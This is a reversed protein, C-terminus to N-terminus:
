RDCREHNYRRDHRGALWIWLVDQRQLFLYLFPERLLLQQCHHKDALLIIAGALSNNNAQIGDIVVTGTTEIKLGEKNNNNFTSYAFEGNSIAVSSGVLHSGFLYNDNFKVASLSISGDTVVQLGYGGGVLTKVCPKPEYCSKKDEETCNGSYTYVKHGNFFSNAIAVWDGAQIDAGFLQNKNAKVGSLTVNSDSIIELGRGTLTTNGSGNGSFTSNSIGVSMGDLHAGYLYNGQASVNSLAIGGTTVVQM